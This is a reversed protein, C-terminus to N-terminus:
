LLAANKYFLLPQAQRFFAARSYVSPSRKKSLRLGETVTPSRKKQFLAARCKKKSKTSFLARMYLLVYWLKTIKGGISSGVMKSWWWWMAAWWQQGGGILELPNNACWWMACWWRACWGDGNAKKERRKDERRWWKLPKPHLPAGGGGWM